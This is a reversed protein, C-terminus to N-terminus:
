DANIESDFPNDIIDLEEFPSLEKIDSYKERYHFSIDEYTENFSEVEEKISDYRCISEGRVSYHTVLDDFDKNESIICYRRKKGRRMMKSIYEVMCFVLGQPSNIDAKIFTWDVPKTGQIKNSASVFIDFPIDKTSDTGFVTMNIFSPEEQYSNFIGSFDKDSINNIDICYEKEM